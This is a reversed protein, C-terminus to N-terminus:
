TKPWQSDEGWFCPSHKSAAKSHYTKSEDKPPLSSLSIWNYTTAHPSMVSPPSILATFWRKCDDATCSIWTASPEQAASRASPDTTVQPKGPPPPQLLSTWSWSTFTWCIWAFQPAKAAIFASSVTIVQPLPSWPPKQGTCLRSTPTCRIWDACPAKVAIM